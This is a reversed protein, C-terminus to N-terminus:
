RNFDNKPCKWGKLQLKGPGTSLLANLVKLSTLKEQIYTTQDSSNLNQRKAREVLSPPMDIIEQVVFLCVHFAIRSHDSRSTWLKSSSKYSLRLTFRSTKPSPLRRLHTVTIACKRATLTRGVSTLTNPYWFGDANLFCTLDNVRNKENRKVKM